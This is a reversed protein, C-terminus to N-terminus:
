KWECERKPYTCTRGAGCWLDVCTSWRKETKGLCADPNPLADVNEAGVKRVTGVTVGDYKEFTLKVGLTAGHM